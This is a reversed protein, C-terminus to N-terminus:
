VISHNGRKLRSVKSEGIRYPDGREAWRFLCFEWYLLLEYQRVSYSSRTPFFVELTLFDYFSDFSNRQHHYQAFPLYIDRLEEFQIM